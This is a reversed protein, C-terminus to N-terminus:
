GTVFTKVLVSISYLSPYKQMSGSLLQRRVLLHWGEGVFRVILMLLTFRFSFGWPLDDSNTFATARASLLDNSTGVVVIVVSTGSALVCSPDAPAQLRHKKAEYLEEIREQKRIPCDLM